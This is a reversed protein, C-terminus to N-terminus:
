QFICWLTWGGDVAGKVELLKEFQIYARLPSPPYLTVGVSECQSDICALLTMMLVSNPSTPAAIGKETRSTWFPFPEAASDPFPSDVFPSM